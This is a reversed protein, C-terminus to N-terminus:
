TFTACTMLYPRPLLAHITTLSSHVKRPRHSSCIHSMTSNIYYARLDLCYCSSFLVYCPCKWWNGPARREFMSQANTSWEDGPQTVSPRPYIVVYERIINGPFLRTCYKIYVTYSFYLAFINWKDSWLRLDALMRYKSSSISYKLREFLKALMWCFCSHM